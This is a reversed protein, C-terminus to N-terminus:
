GYEVEEETLWVSQKVRQAAVDRREGGEEGELGSGLYQIEHGHRHRIDNRRANNKRDTEGRGRLAVLM